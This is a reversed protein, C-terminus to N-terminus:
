VIMDGVRLIGDIARYDSYIPFSPYREYTTTRSSENSTGSGQKFSVVKHNIIREDHHIEKEPILLSLKLPIAVSSNTRENKHLLDVVFTKLGSAVLKMQCTESSSIQTGADHYKM